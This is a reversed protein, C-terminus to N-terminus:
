PLNPTSPFESSQSASSHTTLLPHPLNPTSSLTTCCGDHQHMTPSLLRIVMCLDCVLGKSVRVAALLHNAPCRLATNANHTHTHAHTYTHTRIYTHVHAHVHVSSHGPDKHPSHMETHMQLNQHTHTHTQTHTHTHKHTHVKAHKCLRWFFQQGTM